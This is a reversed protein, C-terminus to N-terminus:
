LVKAVIAGPLKVQNNRQGWDDYRRECRPPEDITM